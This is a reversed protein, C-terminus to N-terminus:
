LKARVGLPSTNTQLVDVFRGLGLSSKSKKRNAKRKVTKKRERKTIKNAIVANKKITGHLQHRAEEPKIMM